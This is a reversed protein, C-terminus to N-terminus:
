LWENEIYVTEGPKLNLQARGFPWETKETKGEPWEEGIRTISAKVMFDQEPSEISIKVKRDEEALNVLLIGGKGDDAAACCYVGQGEGTVATQKGLMCLRNWFDFVYFVAEAKGSSDSMGNWSDVFEYQGDYYMAHDIPSNQMSILAGAAFAGGAPSNIVALSNEIEDWDEVYNWEDLISLTDNYGNQDLISRVMSGRQAISEIDSTYLHWSFFDLPTKEGDSQIGQLFDTVTSEWVYSLAGGGIRIEPYREKLYRATVRYLEYYQEMNGTWMDANDPENWIEWYLIDYGYGDAWYKNYHRIIHECVQAWKEPDEPPVIYRKEETHDISEGLRFFVQAGSEVIATVYKDSDEFHYASADDPDRSFDPFICHIDIFRDQGFPYESDHTRVFPIQAKEYLETLDLKWGAEGGEEYYGSRPGNNIGHLAKMEGSTRNYEVLLEVATEQTSIKASVRPWLIFLVAAIALFACGLLVGAWVRKGTKGMM